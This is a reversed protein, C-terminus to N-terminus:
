QLNAHRAQFQELDLKLKESLVNFVADLCLSAAHEFIAARLVIDQVAM